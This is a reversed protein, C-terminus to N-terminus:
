KRIVSEKFILYKYITLREQYNKRIDMIKRLFVQIEVSVNSAIQRTVYRPKDKEFM